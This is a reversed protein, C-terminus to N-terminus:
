DNYIFNILSNSVRRDVRLLRAITSVSVQSEGQGTRHAREIEPASEFDLKEVLFNKVKAEMEDWTENDDKLLGEFRLNNRRSQSYILCITKEIHKKM